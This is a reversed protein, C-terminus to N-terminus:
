RVSGRITRERGGMHIWDRAVRRARRATVAHGSLAEVGTGSVVLEPVADAVLEPDPAGVLAPVPFREAVLEPGPFVVEVTEPASLEEEVPESEPVMAVVPQLGAFLSMGRPGGSGCRSMHPTSTIHGIPSSQTLGGGEHLRTRGSGHPSGQAGSWSGHKTSISCGVSHKGTGAVQGPGGSCFSSHM